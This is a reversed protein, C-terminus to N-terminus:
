VPKHQVFKLQLDPIVSTMLTEEEPTLNGKTKEKLLLLLDIAEKAAELNIEPKDTGPAKFEGMCILAQVALSTVFNSFSLDTKNRPKTEPTDPSVTQKWSEDVRKDTYRIKQEDM